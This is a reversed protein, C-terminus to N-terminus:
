YGGCARTTRSETTSATSRSRASLIRKGQDLSLRAVQIGYQRSSTYLVLMRGIFGSVDEVAPRSTARPKSSRPANFSSSIVVDVEPCRTGIRRITAPNIDRARRDPGRSREPLARQTPASRRSRRLVPETVNEEFRLGAARGRPPDLVGIIAIDIVMGTFSEARHRSAPAAEGWM